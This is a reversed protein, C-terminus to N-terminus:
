KLIGLLAEGIIVVTAKGKWMIDGKKWTSAKEKPKTNKITQNEM